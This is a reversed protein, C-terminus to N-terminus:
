KMTAPCYRQSRRHVAAMVTGRFLSQRVETETGGRALPWRFVRPPFEARFRSRQDELAVRPWRRFRPALPEGPDAPPDRNSSEDDFRPNRGSARM